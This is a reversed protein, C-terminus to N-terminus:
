NQKSYSVIPLGEVLDNRQKLKVEQIAQSLNETVAHTWFTIGQWRAKNPITMRDFYGWRKTESRFEFTMDTLVKSHESYAADIYHEEPKKEEWEETGRLFQLATYSADNYLTPSNKTVKAALEKKIRDDMTLSTALKMDINKDNKFTNDENSSYILDEDKTGNINDNDSYVKIEFDKFWLSDAYVGVAGQAYIISFQVQGSVKDSATIPIMLGEADKAFSKGSPVENHIDHWANVNYEGAAIDVMVDFYSEKTTWGWTGDAKRYAYKDGVKLMCSMIPYTTDSEVQSMKYGNDTAPIVTPYALDDDWNNNKSWDYDEKGYHNHDYFALSRSGTKSGWAETTMYAYIFTSNDHMYKRTGRKIVASYLGRIGSVQYALLGVMMASGSIVLYNNYTDDVPTLNGASSPSTYSLRSYAADSPIVLYPTDCENAATGHYLFKALARNAYMAIQDTDKTLTPLVDWNPHQALQIYHINRVDDSAYSTAMNQLWWKMNANAGDGTAIYELAAVDVHPVPCTLADSDLPNEVITETEDQDCTVTILNNIEERDISVAGGIQDTTLETTQMQVDKYVGQKDTVTDTVCLNYFRVAGEARKVTEASFIYFDFGEQVIRLNLYKLLENVVDKATMLDDYEEGLFLIDDIRLTSLILRTPYDKHRVCHEMWLYPGDGTIDPTERRSDYACERLEEGNKDFLQVSNKDYLLEDYGVTYSGDENKGLLCRMLIEKFWLAKSNAKYTDYEQKTYICAYPYNDMASLMDICQLELEDYVEDYDQSYSQPEVFGAFILKGDRIINVEVDRADAAFFQPQDEKVLLHITASHQIIHEWTDDTECTIEVPDDTFAIDPATTPNYADFAWIEQEGEAEQNCRIQVEILENIRNRFQGKYIM